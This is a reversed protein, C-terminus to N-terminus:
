HLTGHPFFMDLACCFLEKGVCPLFSFYYCFIDWNWAYVFLNFVKQEVYRYCNTELFLPNDSVQHKVLFLFCVFFRMVQLDTKGVNSKM